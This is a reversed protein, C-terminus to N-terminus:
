EGCLSNSVASLVFKSATALSAIFMKLGFQKKKETPFPATFAGRYQCRRPPIIKSKNLGAEDEAV